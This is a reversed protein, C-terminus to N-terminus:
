RHLGMMARIIRLVVSAFLVFPENLTVVIVLLPRMFTLNSDAGISESRKKLPLVELPSRVASIYPVNSPLKVTLVVERDVAVMFRTLLISGTGFSFLVLYIAVLPDTGPCISPLTLQPLVVTPFLNPAISREVDFAGTVKFKYAM